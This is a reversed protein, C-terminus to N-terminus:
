VTSNKLIIQNFLEWAMRSHEDRIKKSYEVIFNSFIKFKEDFSYNDPINLFSFIDGAFDDYLRRLFDKNFPKSYINQDVDQGGESISYLAYLIDNLLYPQSNPQSQYFLRNKQYDLGGRFNSGGIYYHFSKGQIQRKLFATIREINAGSHQYIDYGGLDNLGVRDLYELNEKDLFSWRIPEIGGNGVMGSKLPTSAFSSEDFLLVSNGYKSVSDIIMRKKHPPLNPHFVPFDIFHMKPIKIDEPKKGDIKSKELRIIPAIKNALLGFGRSGRDSFFIDSAGIIFAYQILYDVDKLFAFYEPVGNIHGYSNHDCISDDYISFPLDKYPSFRNYLAEQEKKQSEIVSDQIELTSINEM